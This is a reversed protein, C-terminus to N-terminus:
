VGEETVTTIARSQGEKGPWGLHMCFRRRPFPVDAGGLAARLLIPDLLWTERTRSDTGIIGYHYELKTRPTKHPRAYTLGIAALVEVLPYGVSTFDNHKNLSFGADIPIYDRRWDLRFSNSQPAAVSFPDATSAMIRPKVAELSDYALRAGPMGAAGGWFKVNDGRTRDAWHTIEIRAEAGTADPGILVAPLTAPSPQADFPFENSGADSETQIDWKSTNISSGRPARTRVTAAALFALVVDIPATVEEAEVHFCVATPDRWDFGARTRGCLVISAEVLGLCAFVQGPNLVDVPISSHGM